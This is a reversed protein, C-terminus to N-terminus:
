YWKQTEYQVPPLRSTLSSTVSPSSSHGESRGYGPIKTSSATSSAPGTHSAQVCYALGLVLNSCEAKLDPNWAMLDEMSIGEVVQLLACTDGSQIVHWRYCRGVTGSPTPAPPPVTTSTSNTGNGPANWNLLPKTCYWLGPYLNSCNADISPNMAMFEEVSVSAAISIRKCNDAIQVQYYTKCNKITGFPTSGPASVTQNTTSTNNPATQPVFEGDPSSVCILTSNAAVNDCATDITLNWALLQAFSISYTTALSWCNTGLVATKCRSPLCLQMGEKIGDCTPGLDNMSWISGETVSKSLAISHCTEDKQVTYLPGSKCKQYIQKFLPEQELSYGLFRSERVIQLRSLQCVSCLISLPLSLLDPSGATSYQERLWDPCYKGSNPDTQCMLKWFEHVVDGRWSNELSDFLGREGCANVVGARYSLLSEGCTGVCLEASAVGLAENNGTASLEQIRPLCAITRNLAEGCAVSINQATGFGQEGDIPDGFQGTHNRWPFPVFDASVYSSLLLFICSLASALTVSQNAM